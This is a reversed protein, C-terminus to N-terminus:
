QDSPVMWIQRMVGWFTLLTMHVLLKFQSFWAYSFGWWLSKNWDREKEHVKLACSADCTHIIWTLCLLSISAYRISQKARALRLLSEIYQRPSIIAYRWSENVKQLIGEIGVIVWNKSPVLYQCVELMRRGRVMDRWDRSHDLVSVPRFVLMDGFDTHGAGNEKLHSLLVVCQFLSVCSCWCSGNLEHATEYVQLLRSSISDRNSHFGNLHCRTHTWYVTKFRVLHFAYKLCLIQSRIVTM